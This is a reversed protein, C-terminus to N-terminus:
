NRISCHKRVTRGRVRRGDRLAFLDMAMAAALDKLAEREAASFSTCPTSPELVIALALLRNAIGTLTSSPDARQRELMPAAIRAHRAILRKSPRLVTETYQNAAM